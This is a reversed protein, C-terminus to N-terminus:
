LAAEITSALDPHEFEFGASTLAKPSVRLSGLLDKAIGTGLAAKLAIGPAALFTPRHLAVGLADTFEANTQAQPITLNYPGNATQSDLLFEVARLWDDLSIFSMYQTGPGIKAGAGLKFPILMLKLLGGRKDLVLTTRLFVVRTTEVAPLAAAEWAQVVDSLFGTGATSRETLVEDGRDSGYFGMASASLMVPPTPSKAIAQAIVSTPSTRSDLLEQRYARTRPWRSISAGSLNIVADAANILDQDIVGAAPDWRSADDGSGSRVLRTVTHGQSRLHKTLATGLFGSAGGIVVQM